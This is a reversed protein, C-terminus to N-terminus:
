FLMVVGSNGTAEDLEEVASRSWGLSGRQIDKLNEHLWKTTGRGSMPDIFLVRGRGARGLKDALRQADEITGGKSGDVFYAKIASAPVHPVKIEWLDNRGRSQLITAPDVNPEPFPLRAGITRAAAARHYGDRQVIEQQYREITGEGYMDDSSGEDEKYNVIDNPTAFMAPDELVSNDVVVGVPGYDQHRAGHTLFAYGALGAAIDANYTKGTAISELDKLENMLGAVEERRHRDLDPFMDAVTEADIMSYSEYQGQWDEGAMRLLDAKLDNITDQAEQREDALNEWSQIGHEAMGAAGAVSTGHVLPLQRLEEAFADVHVQQDPALKREFREANAAPDVGQLIYPGTPEPADPYDYESDDYEEDAPPKPDPLKWNEEDWPDGSGKKASAPESGGGKCRPDDNSGWRGGDSDGKPLNCDNFERVRVGWSDPILRM